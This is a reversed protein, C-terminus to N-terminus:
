GNNFGWENLRQPDVNMTVTQNSKNGHWFPRKCGPVACITQSDRNNRKPKKLRFNCTCRECKITEPIM